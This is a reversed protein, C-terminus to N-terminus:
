IEITSVPIGPVDPTGQVYFFGDPTEPVYVVVAGSDKLKGLWSDLRQEAEASNQVGQNRRGLLRLMRAAYHTQHEERVTWPIENPYRKAPSTASARHLAASVTSRSVSYGTKQSVAQAIQAHTMGRDVM